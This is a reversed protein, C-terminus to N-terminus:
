VRYLGHERIYQLVAPHATKEVWDLRTNDTLAKRLATSSIDIPDVEILRDAWIDREEAPMRDLFAAADTPPRIMVIPEALAAIEDSRHWTNFTLAMDTGMLLHMKITPGFQERLHTLTTHTYSPGPRELEWTSIACRDRDALALELMALRHHAATPPNDTKHPPQGAPIFLIGDAGIQEAVHLPLTVHAHHPPDFTGGYLVLADAQRPDFM